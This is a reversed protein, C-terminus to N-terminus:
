KLILPLYTKEELQPVPTPLPPPPTPTPLATPTPGPPVNDPDNRNQVTVNASFESTNGYSQAPEGLMFFQTTTATVPQGGSIGRVAVVFTGNADTLASGLFTRGQGRANSVGNPDAVFVEVVCGNCPQGGAGTATGRVRDLYAATITPPRIDLNPRDRSQDKFKIGNDLEPDSYPFERPPRPISSLYDWDGNNYISNRRIENYDTAKLEVEQGPCDTVKANGCKYETYGNNLLIGYGKNNAITNDFIKNRQSDGILYIGHRGKRVRAYNEYPDRSIGNGLPTSGDPGVGILNNTIEVDKIRSWLRVGNDGNDSIVNHRIFVEQVADELSIGSAGNGGYLSGVSQHNVRGGQASIGIYNGIIYTEETPYVQNPTTDTIVYPSHAVEIGDSFNGSIVNRYDPHPQNTDEHGGIRTGISGLNIDIGDAANGWPTVGDQRVGVYNNYIRTDMVRWELAIGDWAGAVINRQAPDPGGIWNGYAFSEIRIGDGDQLKRTRGDSMYFDGSRLNYNQAVNTGIFNGEIRNNQARSGSIKINYDWGYVALGRVVNNRNRIEIGPVQYTNARNPNTDKAKGEIEIRIKADGGVRRTNPSAGCQSYGDITTPQNNADDLLLLGGTAVTSNPRIKVPTTNSPCSGDPNRIDFRIEDPAGNANAIRLAARLTCKNAGGTCYASADDDDASNVTIIVPAATFVEPADSRTQGTVSSMGWAALVQQMDAVDICGSGNVDYAVYVDLCAGEQQLRHWADVIMGADADNVVGNGSLDLRKLDSTGQQASVPVSAASAIALSLVFLWRLRQVFHYKM